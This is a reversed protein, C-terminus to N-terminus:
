KIAYEPLEINSESTILDSPSSYKVIIKDKKFNKVEFEKGIFFSIRQQLYIELFNEDFEQICSLAVYNQVLSVIDMLNTLDIINVVEVFLVSM